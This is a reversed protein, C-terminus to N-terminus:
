VTLGGSLLFEFALGRHGGSVNLRRLAWPEDGVRNLGSVTTVAAELGAAVLIDRMDGRVNAPGGYPYSFCWPAQGTERRIRAAAEVVERRVQEIPTQGLSAHTETHVGISFGLGALARVEDWTLFPYTDSGTGADLESEIRSVLSEVEDGPRVRLAAEICAAAAVRCVMGDLPLPRGMWNMALRTTDRLAARVRYWWPRHTGDLFGTALFFLAPFGFERLIPAAETLNNRYGDDFTIVVAGPEARGGEPWRRLVAGPDGVRYKRGLFELQRRFVEPEIQLGDFNLVPDQARDVGHYALIRVARRRLLRGGDMAGVGKLAALALNKLATM